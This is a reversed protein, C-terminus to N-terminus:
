LPSINPKPLDLAYLVFDLGSAWIGAEFGIDWGWAHFRTGLGLDWDWPGFRLGSAWIEFAVIVLLLFFKGMHSLM